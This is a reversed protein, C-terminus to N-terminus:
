LRCGDLPLGPLFRDAITGGIIKGGKEEELVDAHRDFCTSEKHSTQPGTKADKAGFTKWVTLTKCALSAIPAALFCRRLHGRCSTKGGHVPTM